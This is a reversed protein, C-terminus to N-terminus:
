PLTNISFNYEIRSDALEVCLRNNYNFIYILIPYVDENGTVYILSGWTLNMNLINNDIFFQELRHAYPWGIQVGSTDFISGLSLIKIDLKDDLNEIEIYKPSYIIPLQKRACTLVESARRKNQNITLQLNQKIEEKAKSLIQMREIRKFFYEAVDGISTHKSQLTQSISSFNYQDPASLLKLEQDLQLEKSDIIKNTLLDLSYKDMQESLYLQYYAKYQNINIALNNVKYDLILKIKWFHNDLNINYFLKSVCFLQCLCEYPLPLIIYKILDTPLLNFSM